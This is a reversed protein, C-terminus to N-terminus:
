ITVGHSRLWTLPNSFTGSSFSTPHNRVEFHLHPGSSTGSSGVHGVLSGASVAQGLGVKIASLHAYLTYVGPGHKVVVHLGYAAGSANISVVTGAMASAVATGHPATIDLGSHGGLTRSLSGGSGVIISDGITGQVPMVCSASPTPKPTPKPAPTAPPTPTPAGTGPLHLRQGPFILNPDKVVSKNAQWLAPWKSADGLKWLAIHSLTDGRQVIIHGGPTPKPATKPAAPAKTKPAPNGYPKPGGLFMSDNRSSLPYGVKANCTWARPGQLALLAEGAIIQQEKTAKYAQHGPGQPYGSVDVGHASLYKLADSWSAPQFQLGGSSRGGDGDPRNWLGSSECQAIRDWQDITAANASSAFTLPVTVGGIALVGLTAKNLGKSNNPKRHRGQSM